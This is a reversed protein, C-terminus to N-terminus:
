NDDIDSKANAVQSSSSVRPEELRKFIEERHVPIDRPAQIGIRVQTGKIEIETFGVNDGIIRVTEGIRRTVIL